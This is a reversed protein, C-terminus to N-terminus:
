SRTVPHPLGVGLRMVVRAPEVVCVGAKVSAAEGVVALTTRPLEPLEVMVVVTEPPNLEATANDAVPWGVPTVTPKLGVEIADGPDPVDVAVNM